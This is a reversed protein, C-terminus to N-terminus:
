HLFLFSKLPLKLQHCFSPLDLPWVVDVNLYVIFINSSNFHIPVLGHHLASIELMEIQLDWCLYAVDGGICQTLYIGGQSGWPPNFWVVSFGCVGEKVLSSLELHHVKVHEMQKFLKFYPLHTPTFISM